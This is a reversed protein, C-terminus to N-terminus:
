KHGFWFEYAGKKIGDFRVFGFREFQILEGPKLYAIEEDALGSVWSGDPMLIKTETGFSLWNIKPIDKNELSTFVAKKGKKPFKINYLHLLRIEKGKFDNFDKKSIFVDGVVVRVDRTEKPRDPHLPVKIEIIGPANEVELRIPDEVFSYRDATPDIIKRNVAGLVSPDIHGSSKSLGVTQALEKFMEPVFGRRRLASITVLRPDDWGNIEKKEIMERIIRGQTEAGTIQYRGIERIIPLKLKLLDIIHKHLEERLELENSRIVHTVGNLSDEISSEFDYTPWVCYKKGQIFHAHYSVRFIVPDRMVGNNSKMDGKLRLIIKGEKYKKGIMDKWLELNKEVKNKRHECEKMKDRLEKMKEQSCSCVFAEKQKILQEAYKYFVPMDNSAIIEKDCKIGLWSLDAKIADYYEKASKEPNTDDFRLLCKGKYKKAYLYQIMFVLAHGIHLYKSPEPALRTIVKGEKANELEPLGEERQEKEKVHDKYKSFEQEKEGPKMSNVKKVIEQINKIVNKVDKKDLGHQFLKPLVKGADAKGFEIANKLAYAWIEKSFDKM